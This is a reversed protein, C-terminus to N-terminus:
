IQYRVSTQVRNTDIAKIGTAHELAALFDRYETRSLKLLAQARAENGTGEWTVGIYRTRVSAGLLRRVETGCSIEIISKVPVAIRRGGQMFVVEDKDLVARMKHHDLPLSGGAYTAPYNTAPKKDLPQAPLSAISVLFLLPLFKM